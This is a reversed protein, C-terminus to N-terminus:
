AASEVFVATDSQPIFRRSAPIEKGFLTEPLTPMNFHRAQAPRHRWTGAVPNVGARDAWQVLHLPAN